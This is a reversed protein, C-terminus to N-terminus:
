GGDSFEEKYRYFDAIVGIIDRATVGPLNISVNLRMDRSDCDPCISPVKSEPPEFGCGNCAFWAEVSTRSM